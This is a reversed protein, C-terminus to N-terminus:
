TDTQGGEDKFYEKDAENQGQALVNMMMMPV